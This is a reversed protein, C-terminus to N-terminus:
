SESIRTSARCSGSGHAPAAHAAIAPVRRRVPRATWGAGGPRAAPRRFQAAAHRASRPGPAGFPHGSRNRVVARRVRGSRDAFSARRALARFSALPARGGCRRARRARDPRRRRHQHRGRSLLLRGGVGGLLYPTARNLAVGIQHPSGVAGKALAAFAALPNHGSLAVLAASSVLSLIVAVVIRLAIGEGAALRLSAFRPASARLNPPAAETM